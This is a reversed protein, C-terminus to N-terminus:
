WKSTSTSPIITTTSHSPRPRTTLTSYSIRTMTTTTWTKRETRRDTHKTEKLYSIHYRLSVVSRRRQPGSPLKGKKTAAKKKTQQSDVVILDSSDSFSSSLKAKQNEFAQTMTLQKFRKTKQTFKPSEALGNMKKISAGVEFEQTYNLSSNTKNPTTQVLQSNDAIFVSSANSQDNLGHDSLLKKISKPTSQNKHSTLLPSNLAKLFFNNRAKAEMPEAKIENPMHIELTEPIFITAKSKPQENEQKTPKAVVFDDDDDDTTNLM